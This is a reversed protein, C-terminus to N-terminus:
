RRSNSCTAFPTTKSPVPWRRVRQTPSSDGHSALGPEADVVYWAETKGPDGKEHARAYADDPHVQVSLFDAADIFKYLLPFRGGAELVGKRGILAAEDMGVLEGLTKGVLPGDDVVSEGHPHDSVEWSEGVPGGAPLSKGLLTQLRRGGWVKEKFVERFHIPTAPIACM